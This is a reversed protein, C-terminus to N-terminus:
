FEKEYVIGALYAASLIMYQSNNRLYVGPMYYVKGNKVASSYSMIENAMLQEKLKSEESIVIVDPDWKLLTEYDIQAWSKIGQEAGVNVVNIMECISNFNSSKGPVYGGEDYNLVRIPKDTKPIKKKLEQLKEDMIKVLAKAHGEEGLIEGILLIQDKISEITGFYGLDFFPIKAQKLKEKFASSSYFVTFVIDPHHGIILETHKSKFINDKKKILDAIICSDPHTAFENFAIIRERPCIAWLIETVGVSHPIIRLPKSEIEFDKEKQDVTDTRFNYIKTTCKIIRPWGKDCTDEGRAYSLAEKLEAMDLPTKIGTEDAQSLCPLVTSLLIILVVGSPMSRKKM